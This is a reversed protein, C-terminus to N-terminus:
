TSACPLGFAPPQPDTSRDHGVKERNRGLTAGKPSGPSRSTRLTRAQEDGRHSSRSREQSGKPSYVSVDLLKKM